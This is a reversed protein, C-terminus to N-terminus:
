SKLINSSSVSLKSKRSVSRSEWNPSPILSKLVTQAFSATLISSSKAKMRHRWRTTSICLKIVSTPLTSKTRRFVVIWAPTSWFCLSKKLRRFSNRTRSIRTRLSCSLARNSSGSKNRIPPIKLTWTSTKPGTLRGTLCHVRPRKLLILSQISRTTCQTSSPSSLLCCPEWSPMRKSKILNLKRAWLSWANSNKSTSAWSTRQTVASFSSTVKTWTVPRPRQLTKPAPTKQFSAAYASVKKRKQSM